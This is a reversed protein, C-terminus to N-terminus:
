HFIENNKRIHSDLNSQKCIRAKEPIFTPELTLTLKIQYLLASFGNILNKLYGRVKSRCDFDSFKESFFM